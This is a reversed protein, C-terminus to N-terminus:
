KLLEEQKRENSIDNSPSVGQPGSNVIQPPAKNADYQNSQSTNDSNSHGRPNFGDMAKQVGASNAINTTQQSGTSTANGFNNDLKNNSLSQGLDTDNVQLVKTVINPLGLILSGSMATIAGGIVIFIMLMTEM